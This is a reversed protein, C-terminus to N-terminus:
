SCLANLDQNLRKYTSLFEQSRNNFREYEQFLLNSISGGNKSNLQNLARLKVHQALYIDRSLNLLQNQISALQSNGLNLNSLVKSFASNIQITEQTNKKLTDIELNGVDVSVTYSAIAEGSALFGQIQSTSKIATRLRNCEKVSPKAKSSAVTEITPTSIPENIAPNGLQEKSSNNVLISTKDPLLVVGILFLFCVGLVIENNYFRKKRALVGLIAESLSERWMRQEEEQKWQNKMRRYSLNGFSSGLAEMAFEIGDGILNVSENFIKDIVKEAIKDALKKRREADEKERIKRNNINKALTVIQYHLLSFPISLFCSSLALVKAVNRYPEYIPELSVFFLVISSPLCVLVGLIYLIGRWSASSIQEISFTFLVNVVPLHPLFTSLCIIVLFIFIILLFEM